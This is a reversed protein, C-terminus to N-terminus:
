LRRPRGGFGWVPPHHFEDLNRVLSERTLDHTQDHFTSRRGSSEGSKVSSMSDNNKTRLAPSALVSLPTATHPPQPVGTFSGCLNGNEGLFQKKIINKNNIYEVLGALSDKSNLSNLAQFLTLQKEAFPKVKRHSLPPVSKSKPIKFKSRQKPEKLWHHEKLEIPKGSLESLGSAREKQCEESESSPIPTGARWTLEMIGFHSKGERKMGSFPHRLINFIMKQELKPILKTPHGLKVHQACPLNIRLEQM